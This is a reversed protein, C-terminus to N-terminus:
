KPQASKPPDNERRVCYVLVNVGDSKARLVQTRAHDCLKKTEFLVQDIAPDSSNAWGAAIIILVWKM